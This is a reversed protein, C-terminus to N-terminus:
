YKIFTKSGCYVTDAIQSLVKCYIEDPFGPGSSVKSSESYVSKNAMTLNYLLFSYYYNYVADNRAGHWQGVQYKSLTYVIVYKPLRDKEPLLKTPLKSTHEADLLYHSSNDCFIVIAGKLKSTDIQSVDDNKIIKEIEPVLATYKGKAIFEGKFFVNKILYPTGWYSIAIAVFFFLGYFGSREKGTIKGFIAIFSFMPVIFLVIYMFLKLLTHDEM